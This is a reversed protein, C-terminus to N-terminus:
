TKSMNRKGPVLQLSKVILNMTINLRMLSKIFGIQNTTKREGKREKKKLPQVHLRM